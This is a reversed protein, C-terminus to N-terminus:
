RLERRFVESHLKVAGDRVEGTLVLESLPGGPVPYGRAIIEFHAADPRSVEYQYFQPRGHPHFGNCSWAETDYSAEPAVHGRTGEALSALDVPVPPSPPCLVGNREHAQAMGVMMIRMDNRAATERTEALYAALERQALSKCRPNSTDDKLAELVRVTTEARGGAGPGVRQAVAQMYSGCAYQLEAKETESLPAVGAPPGDTVLTLKASPAAPSSSPAPPDPTETSSSSTVGPPATSAAGDPPPPSPKNADVANTGCALLSAASLILASSVLRHPHCPALPPSM